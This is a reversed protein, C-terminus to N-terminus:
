FYGLIRNEYFKYESKFIGEAFPCSAFLQAQFHFYSSESALKTLDAPPPSTESSWWNLAIENAM